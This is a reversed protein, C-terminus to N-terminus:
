SPTQTQTHSPKPARPASRSAKRPAPTKKLPRNLPKRAEAPSAAGPAMAEVASLETAPVEIETADAASEYQELCDALYANEKQLVQLQEAYEAKMQLIEQDRAGLQRVNQETMERILKQILDQVSQELVTVVNSIQGLTTKALPIDAKTDQEKASIYNGWIERIRSLRGQGDLAKHIETATAHRGIEATLKEGTSIIEEDSFKPPRPM